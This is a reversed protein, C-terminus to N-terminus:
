ATRVCNGSKILNRFKMNQEVLKIKPLFKRCVMHLMYVDTECDNSHWLNSIYVLCFLVSKPWCEQAIEKLREKSERDMIMKFLM